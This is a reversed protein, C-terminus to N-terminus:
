TYLLGLVGVKHVQNIHGPFQLSPLLHACLDQAGLLGKLKV